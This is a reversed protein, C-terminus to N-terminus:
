LSAIPVEILGLLTSIFSVLPRNIALAAAAKNTLPAMWAASGVAAPAVSAFILHEPMLEHLPEDSHLVAVVEQLPVLEQLPLPQTWALLFSHASLPPLTTLLALYALGSPNLAIGM